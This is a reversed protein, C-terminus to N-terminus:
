DACTERSAGAWRVRSCRPRAGLCRSSGPCGKEIQVRGQTRNSAKQSPITEVVLRVLESIAARTHLLKSRNAAGITRCRWHRGDPKRVCCKGDRPGGPNQTAVTVSDGLKRPHSVDRSGPASDTVLCTVGSAQFGPMWRIGSRGILGAPAYLPRHLTAQRPHTCHFPGRDGVFSPNGVCDFALCIIGTVMSFVWIRSAGGLSNSSM